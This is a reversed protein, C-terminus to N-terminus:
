AAELLHARRSAPGVFLGPLGVAFAMGLTIALLVPSDRNM